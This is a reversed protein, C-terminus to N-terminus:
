AFADAYDQIVAKLRDAADGKIKPDEKTLWDLVDAHKNRLHGLLGQEFRGVDSVPINDLFAQM